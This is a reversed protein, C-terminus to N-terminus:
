AGMRLETARDRAAVVAARIAAVAGEELRELGAATTGGPSTVQERLTRAETGTARLYDGTGAFTLAALRQAQTADFGVDRAGDAFAEIVRALLGPGSGTVATVADFLEEDIEEVAGLPELWPRLAALAAADGAVAVVGSGVAVPINPMIRAVATTAPLGARLRKMPVGAATSCVVTTAAVVPAIEALAADMDQPKVAIVLVDSATALEAVTAVARIGHASALAEAQAPFRDTAGISAGRAADDAVWGACLADALRGAGILGIRSPASEV